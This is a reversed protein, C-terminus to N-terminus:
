PAITDNVTYFKNINTFKSKKVPDFGACTTVICINLMDNWRRCKKCMDDGPTFYIASSEEEELLSHLFDNITSKQTLEYAQKIEIYNNPDGGHDPHNKLALNHYAKKIIGHLTDLEVVGVSDCMSWVEARAKVASWVDLRICANYLNM